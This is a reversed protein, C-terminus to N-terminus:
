MPAFARAKGTTARAAGVAAPGLCWLRVTGDRGPARGLALPAPAVTASELPFKSRRRRRRKTEDDDGRDSWLSSRFLINNDDDDTTTADAEAEAAAISVEPSSLCRLSGERNDRKTDQHLRSSPTPAVAVVVGVEDDRAVEVAASGRGRAASTALSQCSMSGCGKSRPPAIKKKTAAAAASSDTGCRVDAAIAEAVDVVIAAAAAFPLVAAAAAEAAM